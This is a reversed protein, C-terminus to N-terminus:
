TIVSNAGDQPRLNHSDSKVADNKNDWNAICKMLHDIEYAITKPNYGAQILITVAEILDLKDSRKDLLTEFM